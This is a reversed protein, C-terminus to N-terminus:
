KNLTFSDLPSGDARYANVKITGARVDVVLFNNTKESYQTWFSMGNDYLDAGASGAVVYITGDHNTQGPTAGRMPRSREYDHDHGNFVLDVLHSDVISQWAQRMITVDGPHPGASASFMPKHHMLLSWPAGAAAQLNTDLLQANKGQLDGPDLPTDNAVTLHAPGIDLGFNQEDGPMAFQSFFNVSNIEHNGHAVIMPTSALIPDAAMFWADYESQVQGDNTEDGSFLIFDPVAQAFATKLIQGWTSYGDRTDGLVLFVVHSDPATRAPATRFSYTDSWVGHNDADAGGVRYSYQTDPLLGCLHTEHMRLTADNGDVDVYDYVFTFGDVSKDLAGGVGYQVTTALTTNDNTRWLIAMGTSADNAVNLHVLKPTPDNGLTVTQPEPRSAGYVTTVTYSCPAPLLISGGQHRDKPQAPIEKTFCGVAGLCGILLL